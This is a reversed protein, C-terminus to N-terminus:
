RIPTLFDYEMVANSYSETAPSLEYYTSSSAPAFTNVDKETPKHQKEKLCLVEHLALSRLPIPALKDEYIATFKEIATKNNGLLTQIEGLRFQITTKVALPLEEDHLCKEYLGLSIQFKQEAYATSAENVLTEIKTDSFSAIASDLLIQFPSKEVSWITLQEIQLTCSSYGNGIYGVKLSNRPSLTPAPINHECEGAILGNIYIRLRSSNRSIGVHSWTKPPLRLTSCVGNTPIGKAIALQFALRNSPVLLDLSWGSWVGDGLAILSAASDFNGGRVTGLGNQRIWATLTFEEGDVGTVPFRIAHQDLEIAQKGPLRGEVIRGIRDLSIPKLDRLNRPLSHKRNRLAGHILQEDQFSYYSILSQDAIVTDRFNRWSQFEPTSNGIIEKNQHSWVTLLILVAFCLLCFFFILSRFISRM